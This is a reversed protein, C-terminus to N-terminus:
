WLPDMTQTDQDLLSDDDREGGLRPDGLSLTEEDSSQEVNEAGLVVLGAIFAAAICPSAFANGALGSLVYDSADTKSFDFFM